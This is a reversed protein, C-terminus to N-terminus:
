EKLLKFTGTRNEGPLRVDLLYFGAALEELGGGNGTGARLTKGQLDRLTWVPTPTNEESLSRIFFHDTAPNPYVTWDTMGANESFGLNLRTYLCRLSREADARGHGLKGRYANNAPINDLPEASDYLCDLIVADNGPPAYGVMLSLLASISPTASSTGSLFGYTADGATTSTTSWIGSGPACINVRTGYSSTNLKADTQTTAAVSIVGQYTAPYVPSEDSFNGASAVVFCNQSLAFDIVSKATAASDLSGWSCNIVRAGRKVAFSIGEYGHTMVDSANGGKVPLWQTFFSLSAMGIGNDTQAAAIGAVHTGHTSNSSQLYINGNNGPANWGDYDDIFGNGDNDIGDGQIEGTNIRIKNTLDPHVPLFANDVVAIMQETTGRFYNWADPANMRHLYWQNPAGFEGGMDNPTFALTAMPVPEIYEVPATLAKALEDRLLQNGDIRLVRNLGQFTIDAFPRNVGADPFRLRLSESSRAVDTEHLLKVYFAAPTQAAASICLGASLLFTQVFRLIM